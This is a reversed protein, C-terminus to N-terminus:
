LRVCLAMCYVSVSDRVGRPRARQVKNYSTPGAQVCPGQSGLTSLAPQCRTWSPHAETGPVAAAPQPSPLPGRVAIVLVRLRRLLASCFLMACFLYPRAGASSHIRSRTAMSRCRYQCPWAPIFKIKAMM